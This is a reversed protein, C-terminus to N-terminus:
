VEIPTITVEVRPNADGEVVHSGDVTRFWWDKSIVGADQLADAIGDFLGFLDAREGPTDVYFVACLNYRQDPLPLRLGGDERFEDNAEAVAAKIADRYRVYAPSQRIGLITGNKKTRPPLWFTARVRDFEREISSRCVAFRDTGVHVIRKGHDPTLEPFVKSRARTAIVDAAAREAKERPVGAAISVRVIEDYSMQLRSM